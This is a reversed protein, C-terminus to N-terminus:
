KNSYIKNMENIFKKESYQALSNKIISKETERKHYKKIENNWSDINFRIPFNIFRSKQYCACIGRTTTVPVFRRRPPM